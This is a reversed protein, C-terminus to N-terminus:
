PRHTLVAREIVITATGIAAIIFGAVGSLLWLAAVVQRVASNAPDAFLWSLIGGAAIVLGLIIVLTGIVAGPATIVPATPASVQLSPSLTPTMAPGSVTEFAYQEPKRSWWILFPVVLGHFFVFGAIAIVFLDGPPM